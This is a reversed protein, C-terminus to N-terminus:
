PQLTLIVNMGLYSMGLCGNYFSLNATLTNLPSLSVVMGKSVLMTLLLEHLKNSRTRVNGSANAHCKESFTWSPQHYKM